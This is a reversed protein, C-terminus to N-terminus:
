SKLTNAREYLDRSLQLAQDKSLDVGAVICRKEDDVLLTIANRKDNSVAVIGRRGLTEVRKTEAM